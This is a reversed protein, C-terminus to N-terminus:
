IVRYASFNQMTLIQSVSINQKPEPPKKKSKKNSTSKAIPTKDSLLSHCVGLIVNCFSATQFLFFHQFNIKCIQSLTLRAQTLNAISEFLWERYAISENKFTNVRTLVDEVIKDFSQSVDNCHDVAQREKQLRLDTTDQVAGHIVSLLKLAAIFV